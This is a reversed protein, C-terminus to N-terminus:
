QDKGLAVTFLDAAERDAIKRYDSSIEEMLEIQRKQAPTFVGAPAKKAYVQRRYSLEREACEAKEQATFKSM